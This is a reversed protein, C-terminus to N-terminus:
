MPPKEASVPKEPVVPAALRRSVSFALMKHNM